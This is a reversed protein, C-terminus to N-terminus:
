WSIKVQGAGSRTGATTSANTLAGTYSSGGAGSQGTWNGNYTGSSGTSGGGSAGQAGTNSAAQSSSQETGGNGGQGLSGATGDDTTIVYDSTGASGGASQTGGTPVTASTDPWGAGGGGGYYGGGGAGGGGRGCGSIRNGAAGGGGAGVIVRDALTNGNTRVDSAGGGGGGAATACPHTAAAGGGNFGGAKSVTNGGGVYVHLVQGPTVTLKGTAYGGLGGAVSQANLNGQAGWAELTVTTVGGPVTFDVSAGTYAYTESGTCTVSVNSVDAAGMTGSANQVTCTGGSPQTLVTVDYPQGSTVKTAFTFPGSDTLTLNDGGNDQLVLTQGTLLGSVTGGVSYSATTCAVAVSTVNAGAVNGSGGTVACTQAPGTPETKVTVAYAAKDALATAFTFAGDAAVPLDDGGNDQLVLGTGALNSVTGGITFTAPKNGGDNSGGDTTGGGDDGGPGGDDGPLSGDKGSGSDPAATDDTGLTGNACGVVLACVIGLRVWGAM